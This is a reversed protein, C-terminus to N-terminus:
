APTPRVWPPRRPIRPPYNGRRPRILPVRAAAVALRTASPLGASMDAEHALAAYYVEEIGGEALGFAAPTVAGAPLPVGAALLDDNIALDAALNWREHDVDAGLADAREAHARVLHGAEHVLV